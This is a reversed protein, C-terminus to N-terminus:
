RSDAANLIVETPPSEEHYQLRLHEILDDGLKGPLENLISASESGYLEVFHQNVAENACGGASFLDRGPLSIFLTLASPNESPGYVAPVLVTAGEQSLAWQAAPVASNRLWMLSPGQSGDAFDRTEVRRPSLPWTPDFVIEGISEIMLWQETIPLELEVPNVEIVLGRTSLDPGPPCDAFQEAIDFVTGTTDIDPLLANEDEGIVARGESSVPASQRTTASAESPVDSTQSCSLAILALVAATLASNRAFKSTSRM